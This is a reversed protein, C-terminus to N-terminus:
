RPPGEPEPSDVAPLPDGQAARALRARLQAPDVRFKFAKRGDVLIVPVEHGYRERLAPDSDVDVVSLEFPQEARAADIVGKAVDCLHCHVRTYLTVTPM